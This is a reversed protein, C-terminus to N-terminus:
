DTQPGAKKLFYNTITNEKRGEPTALDKKKRSGVGVEMLAMLEEFEKTPVIGGSAEKHGRAFSDGLRDRLSSDGATEVIGNLLEIINVEGRVGSREKACKAVRCSFNVNGERYGENAAMVVELRASKLHGAWRTAIVPHVQAKSNMILVAVRGDSSFKPPVHTCREVEANVEVRAALLAKNALLDVPSVAETLAEWAAHVNYAATRRPANILSVSDNIRKRTYRKLVVGMDPFPPQWKFNTGLDGHTGLVALWACQQEIAPHLPRCILYTLLASTSVPPFNCATVHQSGSPFEDEAAQHHDIILARHNPINVVPLSRRSGQDLVFVYSPSLKTMATRESPDHINNGRQVLHTTILSSPLGLLVLTRQLISGSALGDADKDPVILTRSKATACELIFRRAAEIEEKKAPWNTGPAEGSGHSAPSGIRARKSSQSETFSSALRKM